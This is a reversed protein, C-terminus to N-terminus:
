KKLPILFRSITPITVFYEGRRIATIIRKAVDKSELMPMRKPNCGNFMGTNVFYPCVLTTKINTYGHSQFIGNKFNISISLVIRSFNITVQLQM